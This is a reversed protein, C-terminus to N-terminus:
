PMTKGVNYMIMSTEGKAGVDSQMPLTVLGVAAARLVGRESSAWPNCLAIAISPMWVLIDM